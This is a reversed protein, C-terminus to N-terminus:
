GRPTTRQIPFADQQKIQEPTMQGLRNFDVNDKPKVRVGEQVAKRGGSMKVNSPRDSLDYRRKLLDQQASIVKDKDASDKQQIEEFTKTPVVPMYTNEDAREKKLLQASVSSTTLFLAAFALLTCFPTPYRNTM